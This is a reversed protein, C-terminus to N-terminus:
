LPAGERLFPLVAPVPGRKRSVLIIRQWCVGPLDFLMFSLYEPHPVPSNGRDAQQTGVVLRTKRRV